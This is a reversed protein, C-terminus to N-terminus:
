GATGVDPATFPLRPVPRVYENVIHILFNLDAKTGREWANYEFGSAVLREYVSRLDLTRDDGDEAFGLYRITPLDQYEPKDKRATFSVTNWARGARVKSYRQELAFRTFDNRTIPVPEPETSWPAGAGAAEMAVLQVTRGALTSATEALLIRHEATLFPVGEGALTYVGQPETLKECNENPATGAMDPGKDVHLRIEQPLDLHVHVHTTSSAM